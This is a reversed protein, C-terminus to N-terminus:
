RSKMPPLTAPAEDLRARATLLQRYYGRYIWLLMANLVFVVIGLGGATLMAHPTLFLHFLLINITVPALVVLFLPTWLDLLLAVGSVMQVASIVYMFYGSGMLAAGFALAQPPYNTPAPMLQLVNALNIVVFILGLLLRLATPALRRM